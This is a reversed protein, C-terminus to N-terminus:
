AVIVWFAKIVVNNSTYPLVFIAYNPQSGVMTTYVQQILLIKSYLIQYVMLIIFVADSM